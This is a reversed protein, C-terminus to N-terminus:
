DMFREALRATHDRKILIMWRVFEHCFLKIGAWIIDFNQILRLM